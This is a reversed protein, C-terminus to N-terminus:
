QGHSKAIVVAVVPGVQAFQGFPLVKHAPQLIKMGKSIGLIMGDNRVGCYHSPFCQSHYVSEPVRESAPIQGRVFVLRKRAGLPHPPKVPVRLQCVHCAGVGGGDGELV